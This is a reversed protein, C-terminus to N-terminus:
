TFPGSLLARPDHCWAPPGSQCRRRHRRPLPRIRLEPRAISSTVTGGGPHGPNDQYNGNQHVADIQEIDGGMTAGNKTPPACAASPAAFSDPSQRRATTRSGHTERLPM